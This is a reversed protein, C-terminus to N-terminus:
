QKKFYDKVRAVVQNDTLHGETDVMVPTSYFNKSQSIAKQLGLKSESPGIILISDSDNIKDIVNKFYGTLQHKHKEEEKKEDPFFHNGMRTTKKGEGPIRVRGEIGSPVKEISENENNLKVIIAQKSDIWIGTNNQTKMNLKNTYKTKKILEKM